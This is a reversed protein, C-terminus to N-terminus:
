IRPGGWLPGANGGFGGGGAALIAASQASRAVADDDADDVKMSVAAQQRGGQRASMKADALDESADMFAAMALEEQKRAKAVKSAAKTEHAKLATVESAGSEVRDSLTAIKAKMKFVDISKALVAAERKSKEDEAAKLRWNALTLNNQASQVAKTLNALKAISEAQDKATDASVSPLGRPRRPNLAQVAALQQQRQQQLQLQQAVAVGPLLPPAFGATLPGMPAMPPSAVAPVAGDAATPPVSTRVGANFGLGIMRARQQLQLQQLRQQQLQLQVAYPNVALPGAGATSVQPQQFQLVHVFTNPTNDSPTDCPAENCPNGLQGVNALHSKATDLKSFLNESLAELNVAESHKM